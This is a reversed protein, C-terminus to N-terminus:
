WKIPLYHINREAKEFPGSDETWKSWCSFDFKWIVWKNTLYYLFKLNLVAALINM